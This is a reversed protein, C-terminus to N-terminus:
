PFPLPDTNEEDGDTEAECDENPCGNCDECSVSEPACDKIEDGAAAAAKCLETIDVNKFAKAIDKVANQMIRCMKWGVFDFSTIIEPRRERVYEAIYDNEKM